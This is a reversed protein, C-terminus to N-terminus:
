NSAHDNVTDKVTPLSQNIDKGRALSELHFDLDGIRGVLVNPLPSESPVDVTIINGKQLYLKDAWYYQGNIRIVGRRLVVRRIESDAM